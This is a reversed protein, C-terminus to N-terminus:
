LSCGERRLVSASKQFINLYTSNLWSKMCSGMISSKWSTTSWRPKEMVSGSGGSRVSAQCIGTKKMM